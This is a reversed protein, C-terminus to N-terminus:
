TRNRTKTSAIQSENHNKRSQGTKTVGLRPCDAAIACEGCRPYVPRCVNQGWTVLYLNIYRGGARTPRRYLAQETQEPM